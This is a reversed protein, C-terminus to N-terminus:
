YEVAAPLDPGAAIKIKRSRAVSRPAGHLHVAKWETLKDNDRWVEGEVAEKQAAEGCTAWADKGV